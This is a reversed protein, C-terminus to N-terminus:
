RGNGSSEPTAQLRVNDNSLQGEQQQLQHLAHFIVQYPPLDMERTLTMLVDMEEKPFNIKM